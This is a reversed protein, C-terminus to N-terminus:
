ASRPAIPKAAARDAYQILRAQLRHAGSGPVALLAAMSVVAGNVTIVRFAHPSSFTWRKNAPNAM